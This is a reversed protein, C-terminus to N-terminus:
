EDSEDGKEKEEKITEGERGGGSWAFRHCVETTSYLECIEWDARKWLGLRHEDLSCLYKAIEERVRQRILFLDPFIPM